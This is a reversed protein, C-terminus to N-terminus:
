RIFERVTCRIWVLKSGIIIREMLWLVLEVYIKM